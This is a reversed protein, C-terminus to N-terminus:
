KKAPAPVSLGVAVELRERLVQLYEVPERRGESGAWTADNAAARIDAARPPLLGLRDGARPWDRPELVEGTRVYWLAGMPDFSAPPESM